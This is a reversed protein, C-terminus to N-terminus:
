VALSLVDNGSAVCNCLYYYGFLKTFILRSSVVDVVEQRVMDKLDYWHGHDIWQRLLELPPQAGYQEKQPMSLDDVFLVCQFVSGCYMDLIFFLTLHVLFLLHTNVSLSDSYLIHFLDYFTLIATFNRKIQVIHQFGFRKAWLLGLYM